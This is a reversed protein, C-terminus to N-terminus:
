SDVRCRWAKHPVVPLFSCTGSWAALAVPITTALASRYGNIWRSRSRQEPLATAVCLAYAGRMCAWSVLTFM